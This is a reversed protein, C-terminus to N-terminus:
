LFRKQLHEAFKSISWTFDQFYELRQELELHKDPKKNKLIAAEIRKIEREIEPGFCVLNVANSKQSRIIQSGIANLRKKSATLGNGTFVFPKGGIKLESSTLRARDNSSMQVALFLEVKNEQDDAVFPFVFDTDSGKKSKYQERYHNGNALGASALISRVINEGAEGANSKNAQSLSENVVRAVIASLRSNSVSGVQSSHLFKGINAILPKGSILSADQFFSIHDYFIKTSYRNNITLINDALENIEIDLTSLDNKKWFVSMKRAIEAKRKSEDKQKISRIFGSPGQMEAKLSLYIEAALAEWDDLQLAHFDFM